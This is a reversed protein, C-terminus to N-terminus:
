KVRLQEGASHATVLPAYQSQLTAVGAAYEGDRDAYCDYSVVFKGKPLMGIFLTTKSAAVERYYWVGDTGDYGSIQEGPRLCAPRNDVVAVYDMDRKSDIFLTVRIKDGKRFTRTETAAAGKDTESVVYYKKVISIDPTSTAKVDQMPAIYQSIVGGWSPSAGTKEVRLEKDSAEEPTLTMTFDGTLLATRDPHLEVGGLTIRPPEASATWDTGSGLVAAIVEATRTCAGWDQTQRQLVLWQRLGDVMASKPEIASYAELARATTLLTPASSWTSRLNDFWRGKEKSGSAYQEISGLIERAEKRHGESWLLLAATAKGHIDLSRWDKRVAAIVKGRLTYFDGGADPLGFQSRVYLYDLMSLYYFNSKDRKWDKIYGADVYKVASRVTADLDKLDPSYGLTKLTAIDALVRETIYPSSEMGPCWSWGGDARRLRQMREWVRAISRRAGSADLLESLRSMRLTESAADNVWPTNELAVVKLNGERQLPSILLSDAANEPAIAAKLGERLTPYRNILGSGLVNGFLASSLSLVSESDPTVIDPLATLCYWTPNDCYSLTIKADKRLKPLKISFDGGGPALWFPTSEVVPQSSPLVPVLSQEGDSWEGSHAITKVGIASLNYPTPFDITIVRQGSAAVEEAVFSRTALTKGTVPDFITIKGEIPLTKETNNYLTASITADDGTRLFQPLNGQAMVRKSAVAEYTGIATLLDPTYGFLQLKWTTNFDPADFDLTLNGEADTTMDPRFFALPCEVPRFDIKESEGGNSGDAEPEEEAEVKVADSSVSHSGRIKVKKEARAMPAPAGAMDELMVEEVTELTAYNASGAATAYAMYKRGGFGRGGYLPYGYLNWEPDVFSYDSGRGTKGYSFSNFLNGNSITSTYIQPYFDTRYPARWEFPALADLSKDSMVAMVPIIGGTGDTRRVRFQWKERAGPTIRDRFSVASMELKVAASAPLIEVSKRITKFDNTGIFQVWTRADSAPIEIENGIIGGKPTLWRIERNGDSHEVIMLVDGDKYSNGVNVKVTREGPKGYVKNQTVWLATEVPPKRDDPRWVCFDYRAKQEGLTYTMTYGGSSLKSAPLTLTPTTFTGKAVEKGSKSKISYNLEKVVPNYLIDRVRATFTISDGTVEIDSRRDADIALQNGLSFRKASSTQSEGSQATVTATISFAGKEFRTGRLGATELTIVFRGAADTVSEGGYSAPAEYYSRWWSPTYTINYSVKGNAIPMGSYTVAHGALRIEESKDPAQPVSDVTVFFTPAKYDAVEFSTDGYFDSDGSSNVAIRFTGLLGGSPITFEGSLRGYADSVTRLSDVRQRNVDCLEVLVKRDSATHMQPGKRTYVIASFGCKQGPRYISLDSLVTASTTESERAREGSAYYDKLCSSADDRAVVKGYRFPIEARGNRDTRLEKRHARAINYGDYFTVAANNVPSQTRSDVVFICGKEKGGTVTIIDIGSVNIPTIYERDPLTLAGALTADASVILAYRGPELPPLTISDYTIFPEEGAPAPLPFSKIPTCNKLLNDYRIGDNYNSAGKQKVLLLNGSRLNRNGYNVSIEKGPVNWQMSSYALGKREMTNVIDRVMGVAKSEDCEDATAHAIKYIDIDLDKLYPTPDPRSPSPSGSQWEPCFHNWWAMVAPIKAESKAGDQLLAALKRAGDANDVTGIAAVYARGAALSEPDEIRHFDSLTQYIEAPNLLVGLKGPMGFPITEQGNSTLPFLKLLDASQYCVFDYLVYGESEAGEWGTLIDKFDSLPMCRYSPELNAMVQGVISRVKNSYMATDWFFPDAPVSDAPLTRGEIQRRNRSYMEGYTKAELLLALSSYPARLEKGLEEFLRITKAISDSSIRNRAVAIQMAARLAEGPRNEQQAKKLEADANTIVDRPFAFDPKVFTNAGSALTWGAAFTLLM